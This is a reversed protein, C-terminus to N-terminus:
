GEKILPKKKVKDKGSVLIAQSAKKARIGSSTDICDM